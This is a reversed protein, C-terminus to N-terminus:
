FDYFLHSRINVSCRSQWTHMTSFLAQLTQHPSPPRLFFLDNRAASCRPRSCPWWSAHVTPSALSTQLTIAGRALETSHCKPGSSEKSPPPPVALHECCGAGGMPHWSCGWGSNHCDGTKALHEWRSFRQNVTFTRREFELGPAKPFHSCWGQKLNRMPLTSIFM